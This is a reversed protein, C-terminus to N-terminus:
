PNVYAVEKFAYRRVEGENLTKLVLHGSPMVEQIIAQFRGNHDEYWYYGDKRYLSAMYATAITNYLGERVGERLGRYLAFFEKLFRELLQIRDYEMGTIQWLSVPNPLEAPFSRQNVNMGIGVVSRTIEGRLLDNEILMGAIKKEGWYIDNPWKIRIDGTFQDLVEKVALSAIRSLIFQENAKIGKPYLLLSYLLNKDKESSWGNGMQGRGRMQYNAVVTTGEELPERCLWAKLYNNTSDVEELWVVNYDNSSLEM